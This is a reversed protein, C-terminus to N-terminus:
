SCGSFLFLRFQFDNRAIGCQHVGTMIGFSLFRRNIDAFTTEFVKRFIPKWIRSLDRQIKGDNTYRTEDGKRDNRGIDKETGIEGTQCFIRDIRRYSPIIQTRRIDATNRTEHLSRADDRCRRDIRKCFGAHRSAHDLPFFSTFCFLLSTNAKWRAHQPFDNIELEAEFHREGLPVMGAGPAFASPTSTPTVNGGMGAKAAIQGAAAKAAALIPNDSSSFGDIKPYVTQVATIGSSVFSPPPGSAGNAAQAALKAAVQHAAQM